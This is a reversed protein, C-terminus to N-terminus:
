VPKSFRKTSDRMLPDLSAAVYRVFPSGVPMVMGDDSLEILGDQAMERLATEDYHVAERVEAPSIGLRDAICSWSLRYNCMLTEIVERVIQEEPTLLYGRSTYLEGRGITEIYERIDRGNQAYASGLQSIGTVGLAYVQGTTRLTCYGQFNRRLRGEDLALSLEDSPLVFHDMGISRYGAGHLIEEARTYMAQKEEAAPLGARELILQRKHVWPVHGYSFTVIREPHIEAAREISRGFSEATQRPLGFLLDMSVTAGSEHLMLVIEGVPLRSPERHVIRLVEEDFDQVGLSYRTFGCDILEGWEAEGLYGPHCEIAIEPREITGQLSLLHENLERIYHIPLATPSGGGYHIQSILRDRHLHPAILDIERHLAGVYADIQEPRAMPYSNCACFHCLQRCFPIHLYFSVHSDAAENSAEVADIFDGVGIDHFYNAPPYSTYRPVPKNYKQLLDQAHSM